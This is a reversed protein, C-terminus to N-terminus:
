SNIFNHLMPLMADAEGGQIKVALKIISEVGLKDVIITLADDLNRKNYEKQENHNETQTGQMPSSPVQVSTM